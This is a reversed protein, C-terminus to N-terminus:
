KKISREECTTSRCHNCLYKPNLRQGLTELVSRVIATHRDAANKNFHVESLNTSSRLATLPKNVLIALFVPIELGGAATATTTAAGADNDQLSSTTIHRLKKKTEDDDYYNGDFGGDGEDGGNGSYFVQRNASRMLEKYILCTFLMSIFDSGFETKIQTMDILRRKPTNYQLVLEFMINLHFCSYMSDRIDGSGWADVLQKSLVTAAGALQVNVAGPGDKWGGGSGSNGGGGGGGGGCDGSGDYGKVDLDPNPLRVGICWSFHLELERSSDDGMSVCKLNCGDGYLGQTPVFPADVFVVCRLAANVRNWAAYRANEISMELTHLSKPNINCMQRHGTSRNLKALQQAAKSFVAASSHHIPPNQKM